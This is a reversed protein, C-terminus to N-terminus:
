RIGIYKSVLSYPFQRKQEDRQFVIEAREGWGCLRKGIVEGPFIERVGSVYFGGTKHKVPRRGEGKYCDVCKILTQRGLSVTFKGQSLHIVNIESMAQCTYHRSWFQFM